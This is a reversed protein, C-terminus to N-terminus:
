AAALEVLGNEMLQGVLELIDQELEAPEVEYEEVLAQCTEQLNKGEKFLTWFRAGVETLAFYKNTRTNLLVADGEVFTFTVYPPIRLNSHLTLM